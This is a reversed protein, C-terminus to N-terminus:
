EKGWFKWWPRPGSVLVAVLDDLDVTVRDSGLIAQDACAEFLRLRARHPKPCSSAVPLVALVKLLAEDFELAAKIAAHLGMM